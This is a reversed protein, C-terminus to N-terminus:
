VVWDDDNKKQGEELGFKIVLLGKLSLALLIGGFSSLICVLCLVLSM